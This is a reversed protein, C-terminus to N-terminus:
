ELPLEIKVTEQAKMKNVMVKVTFPAKGPNRRFYVFGGTGRGKAITSHEPFQKRQWDESMKDNTEETAQGAIIGLAFTDGATDGKFVHYMVEWPAPHSIKGDASTLVMDSRQVTLLEGTDNRVTLLVPMFDSTVDEDFALKAKKESFYAEGGVAIQSRTTHNKYFDPPQIAVPKGSYGGCSTLCLSLLGFLCNVITKM